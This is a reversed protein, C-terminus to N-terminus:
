MELLLTLGCESGLTVSIDLGTAIDRINGQIALILDLSCIM